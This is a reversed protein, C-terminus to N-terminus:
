VLDSTPLTLHTYSVPLLRAAFGDVDLAAVAAMQEDTLTPITSAPMTAPTEDDLVGEELALLGREAMARLTANTTHAARCLDAASVPRGFQRLVDVITQHRATGGDSPASAILQRRGMPLPALSWRGDDSRRLTGEAGPPLMLRLCVSLPTAYYRAMWEALALMHPAVRPADAVVADILSLEGTHTPRGDAMVIGLITRGRM